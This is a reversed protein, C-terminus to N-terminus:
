RPKFTYSATTTPEGEASCYVVSYAGKKKLAVVAGEAATPSSGDSGSLVFGKADRIEMAWDLKNHGVVTLTGPGAIKLTHSNVDAPSAPVKGHCHMAANTEAVVTPDPTTDTYSFTGKLPKAKAAGTAFAPAVGGAAAVLVAAGILLTPRPTLTM